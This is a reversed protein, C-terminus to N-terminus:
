RTQAQKARGLIAALDQTFKSRPMVECGAAKAREALDVQVHSLFAVVPRLNGAARLREVAEIGGSRANLDVVLLAPADTGEVPQSAALLADPTTVMKVSVGIKKATELVKAQFFLDDILAIVDPM